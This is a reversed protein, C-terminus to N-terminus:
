WSCLQQQVRAGGELRGESRFKALVSLPVTCGQPQLTLSVHNRPLEHDASSRVQGPLLGEWREGDEYQVVLTGYSAAGLQGWYPRTCRGNKLKFVSKVWRGDLAEVAQVQQRRAPAEACHSCLWVEDAGPMCGLGTCALHATAADCWGCLLMDEGESVGCHQCPLEDLTIPAEEATPGALCAGPGAVVRGGQGERGTGSGREAATAPARLRPRKGSRGTAVAAGVAQGQAVAPASSTVADGQLARLATQVQQQVGQEAACGALVAAHLAQIGRRVRLVRPDQGTVGAAQFVPLVTHCAAAYAADAEDAGLAMALGGVAALAALLPGQERV